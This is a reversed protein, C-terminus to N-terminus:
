VSKQGTKRGTNRGTKQGDTKRVTKRATKQGTKDGNNGYKFICIMPSIESPGIQITGFRQTTNHKGTWIVDNPRRDTSISCLFHNLSTCFYM